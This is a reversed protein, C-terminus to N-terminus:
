ELRLSWEDKIKEVVFSDCRQALDIEYKPFFWVQTKMSHLVEIVEKTQKNVSCNYLCLIREQWKTTFKKCPTGSTVFDNIGLGDVM